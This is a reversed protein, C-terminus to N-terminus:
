DPAWQAHEPLGACLDMWGIKSETFFHADPTLAGPEDFLALALATNGSVARHAGIRTGCAPCFLRELAPSSRYSATTGTLTVQDDRYLARAFFPSGMAKQCLRCHCLRVNEPEGRAAFRVAGCLCGGELVQEKSM